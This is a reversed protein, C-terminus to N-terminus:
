AGRTSLLERENGCRRSTRKRGGLGSEVGPLSSSRKQAMISWGTRSNLGSAELDVPSSIPAARETGNWSTLKKTKNWRWQSSLRGLIGRSRWSILRIEGVPYVKVPLPKVEGSAIGEKMLDMLVAIKDPRRGYNSLDILHFNLNEKFLGMSINTGQQYDYKGIECFHGFERVLNVSKLLKDGALSNLVVDVGEGNTREKIMEYFSEDRSNGLNEPPIGLEKTAYERKGKSCTGYIIAGRHRAISVAAHGVGGTCSHILITQGKQINAQVVLAEYCTAYVVPLTAADELPMDDPVNILFDLDESRCSKAYHGQKYGFGIVNQGNSDVGAFEFGIPLGPLQLKGVMIMLDKYNLCGYKIQIDGAPITKFCITDLRGPNEIVLEMNM